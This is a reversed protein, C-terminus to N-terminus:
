QQPTFSKLDSLMPRQMEETNEPSTQAASSSAQPRVFGRGGSAGHRPAVFPAFPARMMGSRAQSFRAKRRQMAATLHRRTRISVATSEARRETMGRLATPGEVKLTAM